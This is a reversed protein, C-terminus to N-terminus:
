WERGIIRNADNPLPLPPLARRTSDPLVMTRISPPHPRASLAARRAAAPPAVLAVCAALLAPRPPALAVRGAGAM